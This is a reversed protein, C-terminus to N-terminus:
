LGTRVCLSHVLRGAELSDIGADMLPAAPAVRKGDLVNSAIDLVVSLLHEYSDIPMTLGSPDSPPEAGAGRMRLHPGKIADTTTNGIFLSVCQAHWPEQVQELIGWSVEYLFGQANQRPLIGDALVGAAHWV